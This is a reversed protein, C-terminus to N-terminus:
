LPSTILLIMVYIHLKMIVSLKLKFCEEIYHINLLICPFVIFTVDSHLIETVLKTINFKCMRVYYISMLAM